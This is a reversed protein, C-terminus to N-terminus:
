IKLILLYILVLPIEKQMKELTRSFQMKSAGETKNLIEAIEKFSLGDWIRMIVIDQQEKPLTQLYKKVKELELQSHTQEQINESSPNNSAYEIDETTKNTRFYDTLTNKAIQYLWSSFAGKNPSYSEIKELAKIFVTTTLDEATEKHFTRYFLYNYIKKAYTDYLETFHELNGNQCQEIIYNEQYM